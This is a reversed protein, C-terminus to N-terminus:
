ALARLCACYHDVLKETLTESRFLGLGNSSGASGRFDTLQGPVAPDNSLMANEASGIRVQHFRGRARYRQIPEAWKVYFPAVLRCDGVKSLRQPLSMCVKKDM